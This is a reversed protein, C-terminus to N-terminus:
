APSCSFSSAVGYGGHGKDVYRRVYCRMGNVYFVNGSPGAPYRRAENGVARQIGSLAGQIGGLLQRGYAAFDPFNFGFSFGGPGFPIFSNIFGSGPVGRKFRHNFTPVAEAVLFALTVLFLLSIYLKM